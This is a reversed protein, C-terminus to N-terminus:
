WETCWIEKELVSHLLKIKLVSPFFLLLSFYLLCMVARLAIVCEALLSIVALLCSLQTQVLVASSDHRIPSCCLSMPRPMWVRFQFHTFFLLNQPTGMIWPWKFKFCFVSKQLPILQQLFYFFVCIHFLSLHLHCKSTLNKYEPWMPWSSINTM